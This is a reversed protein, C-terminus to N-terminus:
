AMVTLHFYFDSFENFEHHKPANYHRMRLKLGDTTCWFLYNLVYNFIVSHKLLYPM